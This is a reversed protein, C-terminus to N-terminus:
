IVGTISKFRLAAHFAELKKEIATTESRVVQRRKAFKAFHKQLRIILIHVDAGTARM